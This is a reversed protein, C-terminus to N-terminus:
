QPVRTRTNVVTRVDARPCMFSASRDDPANCVGRTTLQDVSRPDFDIALMGLRVKYISAQQAPTRITRVRELLSVNIHSVVVAGRQVTRLEVVDDVRSVIKQRLMSMEPRCIFFRRMLEGRHHNLRRLRPVALGVIRGALAAVVSDTVCGAMARSLQTEAEGAKRVAV